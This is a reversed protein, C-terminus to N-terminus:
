LASIAFLLSSYHGWGQVNSHRIETTGWHGPQALDWALDCQEYHPDRTLHLRLSPSHTLKCQWPANQLHFIKSSSLFQVYKNVIKLHETTPFFFSLYWTTNTTTSNSLQVWSKAAGHVTASWTGKDMPNELCSYQLPNGNGEGPSRRPEPISGMDRPQCTSKIGSLWKPAKGDLQIYKAFFCM